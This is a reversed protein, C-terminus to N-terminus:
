GTDEASLLGVGRSDIFLQASHIPRDTVPCIAIAYLSYLLSSLDTLNKYIFERAPNIVCIM